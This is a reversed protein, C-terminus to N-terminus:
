GWRKKVRLLIIYADGDQNSDNINDLADNFDAYKFDFGCSFGKPCEYDGSIQYVTEEVKQESFSAISVTSLLAPDDPEFESKGTLHTVQGHLQLKSIPTYNIVAAYLNVKDTYPVDYDILFTSGNSYVIDQKIKLKMYAYTTTLSLNKM